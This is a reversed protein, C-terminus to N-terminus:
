RGGAGVWPPANRLDRARMDATQRWGSTREQVAQMDAAPTHSRLGKATVNVAVPHKKDAQAKLLKRMVFDQTAAPLSAFWGSDMNVSVNM